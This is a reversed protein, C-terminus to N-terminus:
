VPGVKKYLDARPAANKVESELFTRTGIKIDMVCPDEFGYLLDEMEIFDTCSTDLFISTVLITRHM